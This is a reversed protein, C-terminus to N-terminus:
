TGEWIWGAERARESNRIFMPLTGSSGESYEGAGALASFEAPIAPAAAHAQECVCLCGLTSTVSPEGTLPWAGPGPHITGWLSREEGLVAWLAKCAQLPVRPPSSIRCTGGPAKTQTNGPSARVQAKTHAGVGQAGM